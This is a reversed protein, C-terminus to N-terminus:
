LQSLGRQRMEDQASLETMKKSRVDEDAYVNTLFLVALCAVICKKM